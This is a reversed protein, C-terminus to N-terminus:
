FFFRGVFRLCEVFDLCLLWLSFVCVCSMNYGFQELGTIKFAALFINFYIIYKTIYIYIYIYLFLSLFRASTEDPNHLGSSIYYWKKSAWFFFFFFSVLIRHGAWTDRLFLCLMFASVNDDANLPFLSTRWTLLFIIGFYFSADVYIFLFYHSSYLFFNHKNYIKLIRLLYKHVTFVIYQPIWVCTSTFHIVM